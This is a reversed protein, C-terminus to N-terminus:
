CGDNASGPTGLDGDGYPTKGTCWYSGNNHDSSDLHTPDLTISAANPDPWNVGNDYELRDIETGDHAIVLEDASNGLAMETGYAYDCGYDGNVSTDDSRGLVAYGGAPVFVTYGTDLSFADSGDDYFLWGQCLLIDTSTTNYLEFWEQGKPKFENIIVDGPTPTYQFEKVVVNDIGPNSVGYDSYGTFRIIVFSKPLSYVYRTWSNVVRLTDLNTWTAGNDTSYDISVWDSGDVNIYYFRLEPSNAMTLDVTDTVLAETVGYSTYYSNFRAFYQGEYVPPDGDGSGDSREWGYDGSEVIYWEDPLWNEEFGERLSTIKCVKRYVLSDLLYEDTWVLDACKYPKRYSLNPYRSSIGDYSTIQATNSWKTTDYLTSNYRLFIEYIPQSPSIREEWVIRLQCDEGFDISPNESYNSLPPSDIPGFPGKWSYGGDQSWAYYIRHQLTDPCNYWRWVLHPNDSTDVAICPSYEGIGAPNLIPLFSSGYDSTKTYRIEYCPTSDPDLTWAIHATQSSFNIACAITPLIANTDGTVQSVNVPNPLWGSGPVRATYYIDRHGAGPVYEFAVHLGNASDCDIVPRECYSPPVVNTLSEPQTWNSSNHASAKVYWINPYCAYVVHLTDHKDITISPTPPVINSTSCAAITDPSSWTIGDTSSRHLVFFYTSGTYYVIHLTNTSDRVLRRGGNPYSTGVDIAGAHLFVSLIILVCISRTRM